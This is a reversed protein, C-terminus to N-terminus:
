EARVAHGTMRRTVEGDVIREFSLDLGGDPTAARNYVQLEYRGDDLIVFSYVVLENGDRTAWRLPDGLVPDITEKVQFPDYGVGALYFDRDRAPALLVEDSRRKVGPVDRRGNVLTVNTWDIKLGNNGQETIVIDIERDISTGKTEDVEHALGVFQGLLPDQAAAAPSASLAAVLPLVRHKTM